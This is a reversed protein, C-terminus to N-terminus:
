RMMCSCRFLLLKREQEGTSDDIPPMKDFLFEVLQSPGISTSKKVQFALVVCGDASDTCAKLTVMLKNGGAKYANLALRRAHETVMGKDYRSALVASKGIKTLTRQIMSTCCRDSPESRAFKIGWNEQEAVNSSTEGYTTIDSEDSPCASPIDANRRRALVEPKEFCAMVGVKSQRAKMVQMATPPPAEASGISAPAAPATTCYNANAYETALFSQSHPDGQPPQTAARILTSAHLRAVRNQEIRAPDTQEIREKRLAKVVEDVAEILEADKTVRRYTAFLDSQSHLANALDQNTAFIQKFEHVYGEASAANAM